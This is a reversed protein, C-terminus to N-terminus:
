ARRSVCRNISYTGNFYMLHQLNEWRLPHKDQNLTM